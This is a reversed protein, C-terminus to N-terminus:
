FYSLDIQKERGTNKDVLILPELEGLEKDTYITLGDKFSSNLKWLHVAYPTSIEEFNLDSKSKKNLFNHYEKLNELGRVFAIDINKSNSINQKQIWEDVEKSLLSTEFDYFAKTVIHEKTYKNATSGFMFGNFNDLRINEILDKKLNGLKHLLREDNEFLKGILQPHLILDYSINTQKFSELIVDEEDAYRLNSSVLMFELYRVGAVEKVGTILITAYGKPSESSKVLWIDGLERWRQLSYYENDYQDWYSKPYKLNSRYFYMKNEETQRRSAASNLSMHNVLTFANNHFWDVAKWVKGNIQDFNNDYEEWKKNSTPFALDLHAYKVTEKESPLYLTSNELTKSM